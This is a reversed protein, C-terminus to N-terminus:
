PADKEKRNKLLEEIRGTINQVAERLKEGGADSLGAAYGAAYINYLFSNMAPLSLGKIARFTEGDIFDEIAKPM